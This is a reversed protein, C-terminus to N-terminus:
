GHSRIDWLLYESPSSPPRLFTTEAANGSFGKPFACVSISFWSQSPLALIAEVLLSRALCPPLLGEWFVTVLRAVASQGPGGPLRYRSLYPNVSDASSVRPSELRLLSLWEYIGSAFELLEESGSDMTIGRPPALPPVAAHPHETSQTSPTCRVPQFAQM